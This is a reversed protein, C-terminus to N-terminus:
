WRTLSYLRPFFGLARPSGGSVDLTRTCWCPCRLRLHGKPGGLPHNILFAKTHTRRVSSPRHNSRKSRHPHFTLQEQNKTGLLAFTCFYYAARFRFSLRRRRTSRRRRLRSGDVRASVGIVSVHHMWM